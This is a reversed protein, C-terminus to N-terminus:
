LEKWARGYWIDSILQQSINYRKAMTAKLGRKKCGKLRKIAKAQVLTLKTGAGRRCNEKQTVVELHKPNVCRRNSCTHDIVHDKPISGLLSEYVWRHALVSVGNFQKKGYGTNKNVSGLWEWCDNASAGLDVLPKTTQGALPM